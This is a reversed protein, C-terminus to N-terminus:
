KVTVNLVAKKGNFTKVTIRAKGKRIAKVKGTDSVTVTKKNSSSYTKKNSATGSPLKVRIRFTKGKKLTVSKKNLSFKKPAAKVTVQCSATKGNATTATITASGKKKATIKGDASVQVTGPKSSRYTIATNQADAPEISAQLRFSEKVGLTLKGTAFTIGSPETVSSDTNTNGSDANNGSDPTSSGSNPTNSGSDPTNSGSDPTNNGSDSNNDNSDSNNDDPDPTPTPEPTYVPDPTITENRYVQKVQSATLSGDFIKVDDFRADRVDEDGWISGSGISVHDVKQISTEANTFCSTLNTLASNILEGNQYLRIGDPDVTYTLHQWENRVLNDSETTDAYANNANIRTILNAGIRTMPYTHTTGTDGEFLASHPSVSDAIKVWISVTYGSSSIDSFTDSPLELYSANKANASNTIALVNGRTEDDTIEVSGHLTASGSKLSGELTSITHNATAATEFDYGYILKPVGCVLVPYSRTVSASGYTVAATLTVTTNEAPQSLLKGRSSLITENSSTWSISAKKLSSPLTINGATQSPIFADLANAARDAFFADSNEQKSGWICTNDDGIATFTMTKVSADDLGATAHDATTNDKSQLFFVGQYTVNNLTITAYDYDKGVTLKWSGRADGSVKGGAELTIALSSIMDSSSDTGHNVLEYQGAIDDATYHGISDGQYEYVATVPWNEANLFQQHIRVEHDLGGTMSKDFRQHYVLYRNGDTDILTSNHGASRYGEQRYFHYNGILKIGYSSNDGTSGSEAANNGAADLYPGTVNESRFLRMNYGGDAGLEGYTEYLYYYGGEADYQIYPGEGSQHNGGAIHTGFYRDVYNESADDIGDKGPYIAEGTKADLQLLYLGGSWSGYVMNLNGDKDFFIGPDIANPAYLHNWDGDATFWNDSVGDIGGKESGLETLKKLNLYDNDWKTNRTSNDGPTGNKSFGSYMITDVYEYPGDVNKSVAYGICSRCWSSTTSYYLMYAGTTGDDNVYQANWIVDPAWIQVDKSFGDQYGAWRFSEAFNAVVDGYISNTKTDDYDRHTQTWHILDKSTADAMHSGFVYYTDQDKIISPDHVNVRSVTETDPTDSATNEAFVAGPASGIILVAALGIASLQKSIFSKSRM